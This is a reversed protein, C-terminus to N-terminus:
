SLSEVASLREHALHREYAGRLILIALTCRMSLELIGEYPDLESRLKYAILLRMCLLVLVRCSALEDLTLTLNADFM